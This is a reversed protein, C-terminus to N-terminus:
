HLDLALWFPRFNTAECSIHIWKSVYIFYFRGSMGKPCTPGIPCTMITTPMKNQFLSYFHIIVRGILAIKKIKKNKHVGVLPISDHSLM